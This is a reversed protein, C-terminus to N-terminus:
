CKYQRAFQSTVGPLSYRTRSTPEHLKSFMSLINQGINSIRNLLMCYPKMGIICQELESEFAAQCQFQLTVLVTCAEFRADGPLILAHGFLCVQLRPGSSKMDFDFEDSEDAASMTLARRTEACYEYLDRDVECAMQHLNNRSVASLASNPCCLFDLAAM